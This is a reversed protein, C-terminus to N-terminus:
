RNGVPDPQDNGEATFGVHKRKTVSLREENPNQGKDDIEYRYRPTSDLNDKLYSIGLYRGHRGTHELHRVSDNSAENFSSFKDSSGNKRDWHKTIVDPM